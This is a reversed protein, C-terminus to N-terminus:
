RRRAEMRCVITFARDGVQGREEMWTNIIMRRYEEHPFARYLWEKGTPADEMTYGTIKTFEPNIYVYRGDTDILVVGYPASQLIAFFREREQQLLGEMRKRETIDELTGELYLVSGSMDKVVQINMSGWFKSGDKKLLEVELGNEYGTAVLSEKIFNLDEPNTYRNDM